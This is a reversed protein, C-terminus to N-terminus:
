TIIDVKANETANLLAPPMIKRNRRAISVRINRIALGL